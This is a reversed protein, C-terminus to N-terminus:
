CGLDPPTKYRLAEGQEALKVAVELNVQLEHWFRDVEIGELVVHMEELPLEDSIRGHTGYDAELTGLQCNLRDVESAIDRGSSQVLFSAIHAPSFDYANMGCCEAVCHTECRKILAGLPNELKM